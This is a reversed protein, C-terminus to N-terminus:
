NGSSIAILHNIRLKPKHQIKQDLFTETYSVSM